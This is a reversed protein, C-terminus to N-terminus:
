ISSSFNLVSFEHNKNGCHAARNMRRQRRTVPEAKYGFLSFANERFCALSSALGESNNYEECPEFTLCSNLWDQIGSACFSSVLGGGGGGVNLCQPVVM